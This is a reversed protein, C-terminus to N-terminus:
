VLQHLVNKADELNFDVPNNSLAPILELGKQSLFSIADSTIGFQSLRSLHKQPPYEKLMVSFRQSKELLTGSCDAGEILDLLDAYSECGKAANIEVVLPIILGVAVGHPVKNYIGLPYAMSHCAGTNSNYIAFGALCSGLLVKSRADLDQKNQFM